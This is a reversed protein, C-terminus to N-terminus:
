KITNNTMGSLYFSGKLETFVKTFYAPERNIKLMQSSCANIIKVCRNWFKEKNDEVLFPKLPYSIENGMYSYSLYLCTLVVAQLENESTIQDHVVDKILLFVFVVNAPSIFAIDQWGQLLLARDVTKLWLIADSSHFNRLRTCRITLFSGLCSLLESTSATITVTKKPSISQVSCSKQVQAIQRNRAMTPGQSGQLNPATSVNSTLPRSQQGKQSNRKVNKQSQSQGYSNEKLCVDEPSGSGITMQSDNHIRGGPHQNALNFCSYSKKAAYAKQRDTPFNQGMKIKNCKPMTNEAARFELGRDGSRQTNYSTGNPEHWSSVGDNIKYYSALSPHQSEKKRRQPNSLLKWNVSNLFTSSYIGKKSLSKESAKTSMGENPNYIQPMSASAQFM